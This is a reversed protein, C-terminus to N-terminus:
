LGNIRDLYAARSEGPLPRESIASTATPLRFGTYVRSGLVNGLVGPILPQPTLGERVAIANNTGTLATDANIGAIRARSEPQVVAAQEGLLSANASRLAIESATTDPLATAQANTLRATAASVASNAAVQRAQTAAQDANTDQGQQLLAYKRALFYNFDVM